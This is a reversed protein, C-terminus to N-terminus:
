YLHLLSIIADVEHVLENIDGVNNDILSHKVIVNESYDHLLM